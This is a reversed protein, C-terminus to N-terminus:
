RRSRAVYECISITVARFELRNLVDRDLEGGCVVLLKMDRTLVQRDLLWKLTSVYFEAAEPHTTAESHSSTPTLM